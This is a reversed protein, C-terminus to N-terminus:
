NSNGGDDLIPRIVHGGASIDKFNGVVESVPSMMAFTQPYEQLIECLQSVQSRNVVCTIIPKAQGSYVGRGELRTAGHKLQTIIEHSIEDPYSTMIEFRVASRESKRFHDGVTTSAFSYLICLIVPEMKFDYVFYSAVAVSTNLAFILSFMSKEPHAKHILSCVYDMGGTYSGAKTLVYYCFGMIIGAVLPGLIRSTGNSTEYAFRSLDVNDLVLIAVSFTVVYVMSRIAMSRSVKRYVLIALPVNIFLSLYGVSIGFVYQIMTCIGNIGAPAFKNPFVFLEYNLAAILAIVVITIYSLTKNRKKM